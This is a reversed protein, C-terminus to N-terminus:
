TLREHAKEFQCQQSENEEREKKERERERMKNVDNCSSDSAAVINCSSCCDSLQTRSSKLATNAALYIEIIENEKM